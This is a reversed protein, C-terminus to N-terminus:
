LTMTPTPIWIPLSSLSSSFVARGKGGGCHVLVSPPVSQLTEYDLTIAKFYELFYEDMQRITPAKYNTVHIFIKRIDFPHEFWTALFPGEETLTTVCRV